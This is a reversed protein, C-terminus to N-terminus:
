STNPSKKQRNQTAIDNIHILIPEKRTLQKHTATFNNM